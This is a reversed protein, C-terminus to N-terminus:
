PLAETTTTDPCRSWGRAPTTAAIPNNLYSPILPLHQSPLILFVFVAKTNLFLPCIFLWAGTHSRRHTILSQSYIHPCILFPCNLVWSPVFSFCRYPISSSPRSLVSFSSSVPQMSVSKRCLAFIVQILDSSKEVGTPALVRM